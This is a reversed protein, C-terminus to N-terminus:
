RVEMESGLDASLVDLKSSASTHSSFKVFLTVPSPVIFATDGRAPYKM